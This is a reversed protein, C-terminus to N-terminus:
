AMSRAIRVIDKLVKESTYKGDTDAGVFSVKSVIERFAKKMRKREMVDQLLPREAGEFDRRVKFGAKRMEREYTAKTIEM